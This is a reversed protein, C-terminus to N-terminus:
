LAAVWPHAARTVKTSPHFKLGYSTIPRGEARYLRNRFARLYAADCTGTADPEFARFTASAAIDALQLQEIRAPQDLKGAGAIHFWNISGPDDRLKGEYQRLKFMPFRVVHALTYDLREQERKALWSLRELLLKFTFMYALDEHPLREDLHRKFVVVSAVTVPMRGLAMAATMRDEVRRLQTWHLSHSPARRLAARLEAQLEAVRAINSDRIVVASLVFHASSLPTMARQGSEDIYAYLM